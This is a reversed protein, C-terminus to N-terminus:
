RTIAMGAVFVFILAVVLLGVALWGGWESLWPSTQEAPPPV